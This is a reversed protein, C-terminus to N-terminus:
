SNFTTECIKDGLVNETCKSDECHSYVAACGKEFTIIECDTSINM